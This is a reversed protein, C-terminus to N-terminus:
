DDQRSHRGRVQGKGRRKGLGDYDSASISLPQRLRDTVLRPPIVEQVRRAPNLARGPRADGIESGVHEVAFLVKVVVLKGAKAIPPEEDIHIICM